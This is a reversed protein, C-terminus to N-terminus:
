ATDMYKFACYYGQDYVRFNLPACREMMLYLSSLPLLRERTWDVTPKAKTTM